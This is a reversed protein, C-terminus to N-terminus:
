SDKKLLSFPDSAFKQRNEDTFGVAARPARSQLVEMLEELQAFKM